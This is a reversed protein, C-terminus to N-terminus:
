CCTERLHEYLVLIPRQFTPLQFIAMRGLNIRMCRYCAHIRAQALGTDPRETKRISVTDSCPQRPTTANTCNPLRPLSEIQIRLLSAAIDKDEFGAGIVYQENFPREQLSYVPVTDPYIAPIEMIFGGIQSLRGQLTNADSRYVAKLSDEDTYSKAMKGTSGIMRGM